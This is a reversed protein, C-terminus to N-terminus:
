VRKKEAPAAKVGYYSALVITGIADALYLLSFGSYSIKQLRRVFKDTPNRIGWKSELYSLVKGPVKHAIREAAAEFVGGLGGIVGGVIAATWLNDALGIPKESGGWVYKDSVNAGFQNLVGVSSGVGVGGLVRLATLTRLLHGATSASRFGSAFFAVGTKAVSVFQALGKLAGAGVFALLTSVAVDVLLAGALRWSDKEYVHTAGFSILSFGSGALLTGAMTLTGASGVTIVVAAAVAFVGVIMAAISIGSVHGSVDVRNVPDNNELAYANTVDAQALVQGNWRDDPTLFQGLLPDYNRAGFDILGTSLSTTKSEYTNRLSGSDDNAVQSRPAKLLGYDDYDLRDALTADQNFRKTITGKTNSFYVHMKASLSRPSHATEAPVQLTVTALLGNPGVLDHDITQAGNPHYTVQYGREVSVIKRGDPQTQVLTRGAFDSMITTMVGTVHSFVRSLKGHGDYSLELSNGEAVRSIMKGTQDYSAKYAETSGLMGVVSQPSHTFTIGGKLLINGSDDYKLDSTQTGGDDSGVLRRGGYYHRKTENSHIEKTSIIRNLGDYAYTERMMEKDGSSLALSLPAGAAGYSASGSFRAAVANSGAIVWQEPAGTGHYSQFEAKAEWPTASDRAANLAISSMSGGEYTVSAMSGDPLVKSITQGQLDYTYKTAFDKFDSVSLTKTVPLGRKNYEFVFKSQEKRTAAEVVAIQAIQGSGNMDADWTYEVVRGDSLKRQLQRGKVDYNLITAAGSADLKKTLRNCLDYEMSLGPKSLRGPNLYVNDLSLLNGFNDYTRSEVRGSPDTTTTLLGAEDYGFTTKLGSENVAAQLRQQGAIVSFESVNSSIQTFEQKGNSDPEDLTGNVTRAQAGGHLFVTESLLELGSARSKPQTQQIPRRLADYATRNMYRPEPRWRFKDTKSMSTPLKTPRSEGTYNGASDYESYTWIEPFAGEQVCKRRVRSMCDYSETVIKANADTGATTRLVTRKCPIRVNDGTSILEYEAREQQVIKTTPLVVQLTSDMSLARMESATVSFASRLELELATCDTEFQRGFADFRDYVILGNEQQESAKIGYRVDVAFRKTLSVGPGITNLSVPYTHHISEYVTQEKLGMADEQLVVNGVRDYAYNQDVFKAHQSNWDRQKSPLKLLPDYIWQTLNLDGPQFVDFNDNAESITVKKGTLVKRVDGFDQYSFRECLQKTPTADGVSQKSMLKMTLNEDKDYSFESVTWSCTQGQDYSIAKESMLRVHQIPYGNEMAERSEFRSEKAQILQPEFSVHQAGSRAKYLTEAERVTWIEERIKSGSLPWTFDLFQVLKATAGEVWTEIKSYGLWGRGSKDIEGNYYRKCTKIHLPESNVTDSNTVLWSSVVFQPGGRYTSHPSNAMSTRNHARLGTVSSTESKDSSVSYVDAESLHGYTIDVQNGLPEHVTKLLSILPGSNYIPNVVFVDDKQGWALWGSRGSANIDMPILHPKIGALNGAGIVAVATDVGVFTAANTCDAFMTMWENLSNRYTYAITPLGSVHLNTIHFSADRQYDDALDISLYHLTAREQPLFGGNGDCLYAKFTIDFSGSEKMGDVRAIVFDEIADGNVDTALVHAKGAEEELEVTSKSTYTTVGQTSVSAVYSTVRLAVGVVTDESWVRVLDQIGDRNIDSVFWDVTNAFSDTTSIETPGELIYTLNNVDDPRLYYLRFLINGSDRSIELIDMKGNGNSDITHFSSADDWDIPTVLPVYDLFGDGTAQSVGFELKGSSGAYPIVIDPMGHGRLDAFLTRPLKLDPSTGIHPLQAVANPSKNPVWDLIQGSIPDTSTPHALWTAISLNGTNQDHRLCALDVFGKGTISLPQLSVNRLFASGTTGLSLPNKQPSFWPSVEQTQSQYSFRTPTVSSIGDNGVETISALQSVNLSSSHLYALDYRRVLLRDSGTADLVSVSISALRHKVVLHDGAGTVVLTDERKQYFFDVFRSASVGAAINATYEISDLYIFSEGEGDGVVDASLARPKVTYHYIYSNGLKDKSMKLMWERTNKGDFSLSRSDSTTGYDLVRGDSHQLHFGNGNDHVSFNQDIQPQYVTSVAGYDGRINVLDQGDMAFKTSKRDYTAPANTGYVALNQVSRQISSQGALLGLIGNAGSHSYVLSIEPENGEGIGPPVRIPYAYRASGNDDVTFSGLTTGLACGENLRSTM